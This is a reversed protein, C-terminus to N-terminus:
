WGRSECWGGLAVAMLAVAILWYRKSSTGVLWAVTLAAALLIGDVVPYAAAVVSALGGGAARVVAPETALLLAGAVSGAALRRPRLANPRRYAVVVMVAAAALLGGLDIVDGPSPFAVTHQELESLGWWGWAVLWAAGSAALVLQWPQRHARVGAVAVSSAAGALLLYSGGQMVPHSRSVPWRVTWCLYVAVVVLVAVLGIKRANAKVAGRQGFGGDWGMAGDDCVTAEISGYRCVDLEDGIM